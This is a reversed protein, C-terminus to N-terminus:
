TFQPVPGPLLGLFAKWTMDNEAVPRLGQFKRHGGLVDVRKFENRQTVLRLGFSDKARQHATYALNRLGDPAALIRGYEDETLPQQLYEWIADLVDGVTIKEKEVVIPGWEKMWWGLHPHDSSIWIKPSAPSTAQDSLKAPVYLQPGTLARAQKPRHIIDWQLVPALPNYPNYLLHRHILMPVPTGWPEAPFTGPELLGPETSPFVLSSPNPMMAADPPWAPFIGPPTPMAPITHPMM